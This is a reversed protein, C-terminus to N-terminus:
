SPSPLNDFQRTDSLLNPRPLGTWAVASKELTTQRNGHIFRRGLDLDKPSAITPSLRPRHGCNGRGTPGYLRETSCKATPDSAASCAGWWSRPGRLRGDVWPREGTLDRCSWSAPGYSGGSHPRGEVARIMCVNTRPVLKTFVKFMGGSSNQIRRVYALFVLLTGLSIAGSLVRVGGVYLVAALGTTTILGNLLGYGSGLLNGRQTLVVADDALDQFEETHRPETGFVQVLPVAGLTEHVHTLLRSKAERGLKARLKLRKYRGLTRPCHNSPIRM